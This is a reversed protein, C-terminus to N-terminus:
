SLSGRVGWSPSAGWSSCGRSGRTIEKKKLAFKKYVKVPTITIKLYVWVAHTVIHM